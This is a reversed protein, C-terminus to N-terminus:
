PQIMPLTIELETGNETNKASICGNMHEEIIVKSMYLGIGSGKGDKKTSFYSDFIKNLIGEPIGEGNDKIRVVASNNGDLLNITIEGNVGKEQIADQTNQLINLIVQSFENPFGSVTLEEKENLRISINSYRFSAGILSLTDKINKNISFNIKEKNAQFFNKFDNMTTSMKKILAFGKKILEDTGEEDTGERKIGSSEISDELNHFLLQLAWLPQGWQHTIYRIMEGMAALRSQQIMIYDKQRSKEVEVQVRAELIANLKEIEHHRDKIIEEAQKRETIDRVSYLIGVSKGGEDFLPTKAVQLWKKGDSGTVEEDQTQPQYNNMVMADDNRYMKAESRPFLDFDTKGIIAERPKGLFHCFAPNVEQYVSDRNKLVFLDSTSAFITNLLNQRELLEQELQKQKNISKVLPRFLFFYLVPVFMVVCLLSDFYGLISEDKIPLLNIILHEHTEAFFITAILILLIRTPSVYAREQGKPERKTPSNDTKPHTM